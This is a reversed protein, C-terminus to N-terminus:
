SSKHITGIAHGLVVLQDADLLFQAVCRGVTVLSQLLRM